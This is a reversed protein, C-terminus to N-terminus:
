GNRVRMIKDSIVYTNMISPEKEGNGFVRAQSMLLVDGNKRQFHGILLHNLTQNRLLRSDVRVTQSVAFQLFVFPCQERVGNFNKGIRM